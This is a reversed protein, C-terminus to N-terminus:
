SPSGSRLWPVGAAPARPRGSAPPEGLDARQCVRNRGEAKAGYLACDAGQIAEELPAQVDIAALGVSVTVPLSLEGAQVPNAETRERLRECLQAAGEPSTGPLMLIFEEGGWRGILDGDRLQSSLLAAVHCIAKDGVAHGHEDNFRKFLDIDVLVMAAPAGSRSAQSMERSAMALFHRRNLLGTMPDTTALLNLRREAERVSAVYYHGTYGFMVFVLTISVWRLLLAAQPSLPYAPPLVMALADLGLYLLLIFLAAGTAKRTSRATAVAPLFVMLFYHVGSNWGLLLTCASSHVVVETWMIAVAWANRRASLLRYALAYAAASVLNLLAMVPMGIAFFLGLYVLDVCGAVVAIRQLLKWYAGLSMGRETGSPHM